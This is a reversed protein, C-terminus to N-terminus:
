PHMTSTCRAARVSHERGPREATGEKECYGSGAEPHVSPVIKFDLYSTPHGSLRDSNRDGACEVAALVLQGKNRVLLAHRKLQELGVDLGPQPNDPHAKLRAYGNLAMLMGAFDEGEG